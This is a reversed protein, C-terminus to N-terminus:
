FIDDESIEAGDRLVQFWKKNKGWITFIEFDIKLIKRM